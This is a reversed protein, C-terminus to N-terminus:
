RNEPGLSGTAQFTETYVLLDARAAPAGACALALLMAVRLRECTVMM